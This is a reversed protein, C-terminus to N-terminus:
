TYEADLSCKPYNTMDSISPWIFNPLFRAVNSGIRDLLGVIAFSTLTFINLLALNEAFETIVKADHKLELLPILRSFPRFIVTFSIVILSRVLM